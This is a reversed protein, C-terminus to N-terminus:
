HKDIFCATLSMLAETSGSWCDNTFAISSGANEVSLLQKVRGAVQSYMEGMLQTRFYKESKQPYMHEAIALVRQFGPGKVVAYPLIDTVIM